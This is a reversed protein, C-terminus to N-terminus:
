AKGRGSGSGASAKSRSNKPGAQRQRAKNQSGPKLLRPDFTGLAGFLHEARELQALSREGLIDAMALELSQLVAITATRSEFTHVGTPPAALILDALHAVPNTESDTVLVIKGGCHAFYKIIAQTPLSYRRHILALLIDRSTVGMLQQPLASALNDVLHVRDRHYSARTWFFHALGYSSQQGTIYLEGKKDSLLAAAHAIREAGIRAHAEQLDKVAEGICQGLYDQTQRLPKHKRLTYRQVPSDLRTLMENQLQEQFDQFGQYGLRSIFRIVTAKSVGSKEGISTPTEFAVKPYTSQFFDAIKTESPTLRELQGLREPLTQKEVLQVLRQM